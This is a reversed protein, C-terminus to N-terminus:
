GQGVVGEGKAGTHHAPSKVCRNFASPYKCSSYAAVTSKRNQHVRDEARGSTGARARERAGDTEREGGRGSGGRKESPLHRGTPIHWAAVKASPVRGRGGPRRGAERRRGEARGRETAQM